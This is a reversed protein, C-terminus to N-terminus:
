SKEGMKKHKEPMDTPAKGEYRSPCKVIVQDADLKSNKKLIGEAVVKIGPKFTDPLADRYVIQISKGGEAIQFTRGMQSSNEEVTGKQVKGKVRIREGVLQSSKAAAEDVSFFYTGSGFGDFIIWSGFAVFGILILGIRWDTGGDHDADPLGEVNSDLYQNEEM